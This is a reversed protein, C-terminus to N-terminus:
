VRVQKTAATSDFVQFLKTALNEKGARGDCVMFLSWKLMQRHETSFFRLYFIKLFKVVPESASFAVSALLHFTLLLM